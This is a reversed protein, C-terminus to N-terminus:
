FDHERGTLEKAEEDRAIVSRKNDEHNERKWFTM